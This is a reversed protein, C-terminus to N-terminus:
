PEVQAHVTITTTITNDRPNPDAQSASVHASNATTREQVGIASLVLQLHTAQGPQLNGLECHVIHRWTREKVVYCVPWGPLLPDLHMDVPQGAHGTIVLTFTVTEGSDLNRLACTFTDGQQECLPLGPAYTILSLDSPLADEFRVDKAVLAGRNTITYTYTFPQDAIISTPGDAQLVLDTTTPAVTVALPGDVTPTRDSSSAGVTMTFTAGNDSPTRDAENAKVTVTPHFTEASWTDVKV